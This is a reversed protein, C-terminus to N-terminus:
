FAVRSSMTLMPLMVALLLLGIVAFMVLILLPELVALLRSSRTEVETTMDGALTTFATEMDGSREAAVLLRRTAVPFAVVEDILTRLLGGDILRTRLRELQGRLVPHTVAQNAVGLADGLPVGTRVMAAMVSFFRASEQALVVDRVLPLKRFVGAVVSAIAKRALVAAFAVAAAALALWLVNAKMWAGTNMVVQSIWPLPIDADALAEGLKPVVGIMMFVTVIVSISLVVIPYVLLTTAKGKIGLQRRANLMLERAAGALDGSREAGRYVAITVNDFGGVQRCADAFSSGSAVLDKMRAITPRAAPRVTQAVVELAEVLPVGRSLLQALQENLLAYDKLSIGGESGAWAPLRYTKLLLRNESRLSQSLAQVSGASRVGFTRGGGPRMAVYLFPITAASSMAFINDTASAATGSPQPHQPAPWPNYAAASRLARPFSYVM